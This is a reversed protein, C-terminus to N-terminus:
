IDHDAWGELDPATPLFAFCANAIEMRGERELRKTLELQLKHLHRVDSAAYKSRM